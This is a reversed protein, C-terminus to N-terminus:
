GGPSTERIIEHRFLLPHKSRFESSEIIALAVGARTMEGSRLQNVYSALGDPDGARGLLLEYLLNAYVADALAFTAHRSKFEDSRMMSVLMNSITTEGGELSAVWTELGHSDAERGLVLCFAYGVQRTPLAESVGSATNCDRRIERAIDPGKIMERVAFYAPKPDGVAWGGKGNDILRVLGMFAEFDPAWYTEDLLEYIHAAEIPYAAQLDRLRAMARKLGEAQPQEGDQSGNPHNFETVWVPKGYRALIKAAWEVDQGYTHWVSIDWRIGDQHMREFAGVHGWGATGIAKRITPDVAVIGDSLGKLVASVKVWRPGYYELPGVGGAPGWECPYRSGDDRMECPQIIAYNELENGLEWVRIDDKFQSALEVALDYAARYLEDATNQELSVAGPTVVPLIDISRAKGERVLEGLLPAAAVDSLNVRYSRVGLDALYDFQQKISVGPYATIPHGNIGWLLDAVAIPTAALLCLSAMLLRLIMFPAM